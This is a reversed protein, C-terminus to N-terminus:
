IEYSQSMKPGKSVYLIVLFLNYRASDCKWHNQTGDFVRIAANVRLVVSNYEGEAHELLLM